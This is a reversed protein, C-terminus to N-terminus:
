FLLNLGKVVVSTEERGVNWLVLLPPAATLQELFLSPILVCFTSIRGTMNRVVILEGRV